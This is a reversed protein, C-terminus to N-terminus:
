VGKDLVYKERFHPHKKEFFDQSFPNGDVGVANIKLENLCNL